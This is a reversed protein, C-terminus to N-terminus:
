SIGHPSPAYKIPRTWIQATDAARGTKQATRTSHARLEQIPNLSRYRITELLSQLKLM